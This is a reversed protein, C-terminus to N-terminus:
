AMMEAPPGEPRSTGAGTAVVYGICVAGGRTHVLDKNSEPSDRKGATFTMRWGHEM